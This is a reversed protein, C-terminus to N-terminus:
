GSYDSLVQFVISREEVGPQKESVTNVARRDARFSESQLWHTLEARADPAQHEERPRERFYVGSDFSLRTFARARRRRRRQDRELRRDVVRRRSTLFSAESSDTRARATDTSNM